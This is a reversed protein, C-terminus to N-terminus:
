GGKRPAALLALRAVTRELAHTGAGGGGKLSQDADRLLRLARAAADPGHRALAAVFPGQFMPHVGAEGAAEPLSAGRAHAAAARALRRYHFSLSGLLAEPKEGADLRACLHSLAEAAEGRSAAEALAFAQVPPGEGALAEIDQVSIAPLAGAHLALVELAGAIRATSGGCREALLRAAAAALTKAHRERARSLTWRTLEPKGPRDEPTWCAVAEDAGIADADRKRLSTELVLTACANESRSISRLM